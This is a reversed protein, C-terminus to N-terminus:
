REAPEPPKNFKAALLMTAAPLLVGWAIYGLDGLMASGAIVGIFHLLSLVGSALLLWRVWTELRRRERKSTWRM